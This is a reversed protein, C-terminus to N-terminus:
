FACHREDAILPDNAPCRHPPRMIATFSCKVSSVIKYRRQKVTSQELSSQRDNLM